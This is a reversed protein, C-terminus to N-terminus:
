RRSRPADAEPRGPAGLPLRAHLEWREPGRRVSIREGEYPELHASVFADIAAFIVSFISYTFYDERRKQKSELTSQLQIGRPTADFRDFLQLTDQRSFASDPNAAQEEAVFDLRERSVQDKFDNVERQELFGLTAFGVETGAYMFGRFKHGTYFQGWGPLAFARLVAGRPSRRLRDEEPVNELTTRASELRERAAQIERRAQDLTDAAAARAASDALAPAAQGSDAPLTAAERGTPAAGAPAAPPPGM